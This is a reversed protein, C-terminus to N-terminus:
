AASPKAFPHRGHRRRCLLGLFSGGDPSVGTYSPSLYQTGSAYQSQTTAAGASTAPSAGNVGFVNIYAGNSGTTSANGVTWNTLSGYNAATPSGLEFNSTGANDTYASFSGDTVLNAGAYAIRPLLLAATALPLLPRLNM